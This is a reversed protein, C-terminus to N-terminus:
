NDRNLEFFHVLPRCNNLEFISQEDVHVYRLPDTTCLVTLVPPFQPENSYIVSMENPGHHVFSDFWASITTWQMLDSENRKAAQHKELEGVEV